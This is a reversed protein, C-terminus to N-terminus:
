KNSGASLFNGQLYNTPQFQEFATIRKKTTILIGIIKCIPPKFSNVTFGECTKGTIFDIGVKDSAFVDLPSLKMETFDFDFSPMSVEKKLEVKGFSSDQNKPSAFTLLCVSFLLLISFIKKM